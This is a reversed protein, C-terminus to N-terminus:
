AYARCTSGGSSPVSVNIFSEGAWPIDVYSRDCKRGIDGNFTPKYVRISLGPLNGARKMSPEQNIALRLRGDSCEVHRFHAARRYRFWQTIQAATGFWAARARLATLLRSYFDGWLREPALSRTHWLITLVGGYSTANRLLIDCFEWAGRDDVGLYGDYFLATDQIHLPLELLTEAGEPRFVQGTGAKYGVTENYGFTSDYQFGAKDLLYPSSQDFCLWHLRIGLEANGTIQAIRRREELGSEADHWADIGHVGIENGSASLEQILGREEVVDYLACRREAHARNVKQGPRNKFPIFFFTAKLDRELSTFRAFDALWFDQCLGLHVAPLSLVAKFNRLCQRWSIKRTALKVLTGVSARYLFGLTTYDLKHDRIRIFDVDHTLCALFDYGAPTPPIEVVPIGNDLICDRLIAIHIELTPILANEPPQGRTLLHRVEGFLDYGVHVIKLGSCREEIFAAPAGDETRVPAVEASEFTAINGYIPFIRERHLLYQKGGEGPNQHTTGACDSSYTVLLKAQVETLVAGTALVVSYTEGHRYFEWSTKFLEFFERVWPEEAPECIVGIAYRESM